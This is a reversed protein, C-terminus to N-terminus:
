ASFVQQLSCIPLWVHRSLYALVTRATRVRGASTPSLPSVHNANITGPNFTKNIKQIDLM